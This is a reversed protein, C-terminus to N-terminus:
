LFRGDEETSVCLTRKIDESRNDPRNKQQRNDQDREADHPTQGCQRDQQETTKPDATLSAIWQPTQEHNSCSAQQDGAGSIEGQPLRFFFIQTHRSMGKIRLVSLYPVSLWGAV